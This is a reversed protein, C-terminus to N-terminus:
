DKQIFELEHEHTISIMWCDGDFLVHYLYGDEDVKLTRQTTHCCYALAALARLNAIEFGDFSIPLLLSTEEWTDTGGDRLMAIVVRAVLWADRESFNPAPGTELSLVCPTNDRSIEVLRVNVGDEYKLVIGGKISIVM